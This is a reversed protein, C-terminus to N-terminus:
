IYRFSVIWRHSLRPRLFSPSISGSLPLGRSRCLSLSISLSLYSFSLWIARSAATHRDFSAVSPARARATSCACTENSSEHFISSNPGALFIILCALAERSIITSASVLSLLGFLRSYIVTARVQADIGSRADDDDDDSTTGAPLIMTRLM